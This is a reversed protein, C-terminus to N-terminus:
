AIKITKRYHFKRHHIHCLFIVELPKKYDQHHAVSKENGCLVCPKRKIEGRKVAKRLIREVNVKSKNKKNWKTESGYGNKKRWKKNYANNYKRLKEANNLRYARYWANYEENSNFRHRWPM